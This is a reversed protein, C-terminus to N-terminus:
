QSSIGKFLRSIYRELFYEFSNERIFKETTPDIGGTMLLEEESSEAVEKAINSLENFDGQFIRHIEKIKQLDKSDMPCDIPMITIDGYQFRVPGSSYDIKNPRYFDKGDHCNIQIDKDGEEDTDILAYYGAKSIEHLSVKPWTQINDLLEFCRSYLLSEYPYIGAVSLVGSYDPAKGSLGVRGLDVSDIDCFQRVIGYVLLLNGVGLGNETPLFLNLEAIGNEDIRLFYARSDQKQRTDFFYHEHGKRWHYVETDPDDQRVVENLKFFSDIGAIDYQLMNKEGKM